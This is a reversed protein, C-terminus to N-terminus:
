FADLLLLLIVLASASKQSLFSFPDIFDDSPNVYYRVIAAVIVTERHLWAEVEEVGQNIGRILKVSQLDQDWLDQVEIM